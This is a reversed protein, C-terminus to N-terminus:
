SIFTTHTHARTQTRAIMKKEGM